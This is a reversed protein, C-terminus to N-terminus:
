PQRRDCLSLERAKAVAALQSSVELRRLLAHIHNRVTPLSLALRSAIDKPRIGDALLGLIERQRPTLEPVQAPSAAEEPEPPVVQLPHLVVADDGAGVVITSVSLHEVGSPMRVRLGTCSVPWGERALRVVSCGPHCVVGGDADNGRIVEWCGRGVAEGAPIGSLQEAAHNWDVIQGSGNTHFLPLRSRVTM